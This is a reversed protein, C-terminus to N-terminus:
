ELVSGVYIHWHLHKTEQHEGFNTTLRCKGHQYMVQQIVERMVNFMEDLIDKNEDIIELLSPFHKKPIVIIHVPWTPRTHHFAMVNDTEAIVNVKTKKSIIQECYFDCVM